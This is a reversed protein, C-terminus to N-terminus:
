LSLFLFVGSVMAVIIRRVVFQHRSLACNERAPRLRQSRVM